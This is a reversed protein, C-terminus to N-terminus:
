AMKWNLANVAFLRLSFVGRDSRPTLAGVGGRDPLVPPTRSREDAESPEIEEVKWEAM